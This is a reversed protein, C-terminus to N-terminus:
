YLRAARAQPASRKVTKAYDPGRFGLRRLAQDIIGFPLSSEAADGRGISIQFEGRGGSQAREILTTKGLGAEGVIFLSRGRGERAESLLREIAGLTRDREWIQAQPM